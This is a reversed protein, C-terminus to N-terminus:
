RWVQWRSIPWYRVTVLGEINARPVPGWMRSDSARLGFDGLVCFEDEKLRWPQEPAGFAAAFGGEYEASFQLKAIPEPPTLKAGNVWIAGDKIFVEEGPFGVLRFVYKQSPELPYRFVILDWRRPTLLKNCIFRDPPLTEFAAYKPNGAKFCQSCIGLQGTQIFLGSTIQEPSPTPLIMTQGCYPCTGTKHWGVMTPAMSNTPSIFAELIYTKVVLLVFVLGLVNPIISVLWVLITRQISAQFIWKIIAWSILVSGFFVSVLVLLTWATDDPQLSGQLWIRLFLVAIGVIGRLAAAALARFITAKSAKVLRAGMWLFLADLLLSAALLLGFLLLTTM